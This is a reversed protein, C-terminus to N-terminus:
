KFNELEQNLKEKAYNYIEIALINNKIFTEKAGEPIEQNWESKNLEPVTVSSRGIKRALIDVSDQLRESLGIFIFQEDLISQYNDINIEKPLFRPIFSERRKDLYEDLSWNNAIGEHQKGNRYVKSNNNKALSQLHFYNSLHVEFPDRIFTIMQNAEPYYDRVGINRANNFHGHICLRSIPKKTFIGKHLPHKKPSANRRESFYHLRLNRGFWTKLCSQFSTGACKPIHISILPLEPSYTKM